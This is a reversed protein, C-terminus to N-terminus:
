WVACKKPSRILFSIIVLDAITEGPRAGKCSQRVADTGYVVFWSEENLVRLFATLETSAGGLALLSSQAHIFEIVERCTDISLGMRNFIALLAADSEDTGVV